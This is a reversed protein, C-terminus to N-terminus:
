IAVGPWITPVAPTHDLWRDLWAFSHRKAVPPYNHDGPFTFLAIRDGVGLARYVESAAAFKGVSDDRAAEDETCQILLPRPAVMMM